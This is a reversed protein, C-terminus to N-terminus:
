VVKGDNNPTYIPQDTQAFVLGRRSTLPIDTEMHQGGDWRVILRVFDEKWKEVEKPIVQFHM